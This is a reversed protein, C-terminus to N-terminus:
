DTTMARSDIEARIQRVPVVRISKRETMAITDLQQVLDEVKEFLPQPASVVIANSTEDVGLTM